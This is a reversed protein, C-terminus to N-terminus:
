VAIMQRASADTQRTATHSISFASVDTTSEAVKALIGRATYCTGRTSSMLVVNRSSLLTPRTVVPKWAYELIKTNPLEHITTPLLSGARIHLDALRPAASAAGAGCRASVVPQRDFNQPRTSGQVISMPWKTAMSTAFTMIKLDPLAQMSGRPRCGGFPWSSM